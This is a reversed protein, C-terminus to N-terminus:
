DSSATNDKKVDQNWKPPNAACKSTAWKTKIIMNCGCITCTNENFDECDMCIELRKKYTTPDVVKAGNKLHKTFEKAFGWVLSGLDKRTM